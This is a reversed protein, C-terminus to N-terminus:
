AGQHRPLHRLGAAPCRPIPGGRGGRRRRPDRCRDRRAPRLPYERLRRRQLHGPGAAGPRAARAADAPDLARIDVGDLAGARSAPRLLAAATAAGHDQRRRLPRGAGGDRGAGGGPSFGDLAAHGPRTPYHFRVDEFAIRAARRARCRRRARGARRHRAREALLEVSGSPPAPPASSRAGSRASRPAPPPWCSPM